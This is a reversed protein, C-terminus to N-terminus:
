EPLRVFVLIDVQKTRGSSSGTVLLTVKYTLGPTGVAVFLQVLQGQQVIFPGASVVLPTVDPPLPAPSVVANGIVWGASPELVVLPVSVTAITEATDLWGDTFFDLTVRRVEASDKTLRGAIM